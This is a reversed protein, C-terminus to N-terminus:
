KTATDNTIYGAAVNIAKRSTKYRGYNTVETGDTEIRTAMFGDAYEEIRVTRIIGDDCVIPLTLRWIGSIMRHFAPPTETSQRPNNVAKVGQKCNAQAPVDGPLM